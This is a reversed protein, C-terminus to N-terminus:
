LRIVSMPLLSKLYLDYWTIRNEHSKIDVPCPKCKKVSESEWHANKAIATANKLITKQIMISKTFQSMALQAFTMDSGYLAQTRGYKTSHLGSRGVQDANKM